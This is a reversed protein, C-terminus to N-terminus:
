QYLSKDKTDLERYNQTDKKRRMRVIRPKRELFSLGYRMTFCFQMRTDMRFRAPSIKSFWRRRIILNTLFPASESTFDAKLFIGPLLKDADLSPSTNPM